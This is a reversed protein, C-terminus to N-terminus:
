GWGRRRSHARFISEGHTCVANLGRVDAAMKEIVVVLWKFFTFDSSCSSFRLLSFFFGDEETLLPWTQRTHWLLQIILNSLNAPLTAQTDPMLGLERELVARWSATSLLRKLYHLQPHYLHHCKTQPVMPLRRDSVGTGQMCSPMAMHPCAVRLDRDDKEGNAPTEGAEPDDNPDSCKSGIHLFLEKTILGVPITDKKGTPPFIIM